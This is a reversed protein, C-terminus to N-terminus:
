RPWLEIVKGGGEPWPYQSGSHAARTPPCAGDHPIGGQIVGVGCNYRGEEEGGVILCKLRWENTVNMIHALTSHSALEDM